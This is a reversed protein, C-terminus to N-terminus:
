WHEKVREQVSVIAATLIGLNDEREGMPVAALYRVVEVGRRGSCPSSM